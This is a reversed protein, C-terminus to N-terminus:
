TENLLKALEMDDIFRLRPVHMTTYHAQAIAKNGIKFLSGHEYPTIGFRNLQGEFEQTPDGLANAKVYHTILDKVISVMTQNQEM